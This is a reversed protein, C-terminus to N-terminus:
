PGLGTEFIEAGVIGGGRGFENGLGPEVGVDLGPAHGVFGRAEVYIRGQPAVGRDLGPPYQELFPTRDGVAFEVIVQVIGVAGDEDLLEGDIRNRAVRSRPNQPLGAQQDILLLAAVRNPRTGVLPEPVAVFPALILPVGVQDAPFTFGNATLWTLLATADTAKLITLNYIDITQTQFAEVAPPEYSARAGGGSSTLQTPPSFQADLDSFITDDGKKVEPKTSSQIPVIWVLNTLNDSVIKTSVVMREIPANWFIATRQQPEFVMVHNNPIIGGDALVVPLCLLLFILALGGGKQM